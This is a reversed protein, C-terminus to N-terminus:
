ITIVTPLTARCVGALEETLVDILMFVTKGLAVTSWCPGSLWTGGRPYQHLLAKLTNQM